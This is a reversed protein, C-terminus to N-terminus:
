KQKELVAILNDIKSVIESQAAPSTIVDNTASGRFSSDM